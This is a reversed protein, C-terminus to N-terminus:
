APADLIGIILAVVAETASNSAKTKEMIRAGGIANVLLQALIEPACDTRVHGASQALKLAHSFVEVLEAFTERVEQRVLPDHDAVELTANTAFCGKRSKSSRRLMMMRVAQDVGARASPAASVIHRVSGILWERYHGLASLYLKHKSGFSAYISPKEVGLRATLMDMSTGRYGHDWFVTLARDLAVRKEIKRPMVAGPLRQCAVSMMKTCCVRINRLAQNV